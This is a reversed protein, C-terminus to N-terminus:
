PTIRATAVSGCRVDGEVAVYAQRLSIGEWTRRCAPPASSASSRPCTVVEGPRSSPALIPRDRCTASAVRWCRTSSRTSARRLRWRPAIRRANRRYSATGLVADIRAAIRPADRDGLVGRTGDDDGGKPEIVLGAGCDAVRRGNVFQDAFLPAVVLPVGVALAGFVTGSGGHCVVIDAEALVHAQEVWPEVHVNAPVPELDMPDFRHGVTLLVRADLRAAAALAMRYIGAAISM